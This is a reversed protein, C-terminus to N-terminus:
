SCVLTSSRHNFDDEPETKVVVKNPCTSSTSHGALVEGGCNWIVAHVILSGHVGGQFSAPKSSDGMTCSVHTYSVNNSNEIGTLFM